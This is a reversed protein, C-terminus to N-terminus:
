KPELLLLSVRWNYDTIKLDVGDQDLLRVVVENFTLDYCPSFFMESPQVNLAYGFDETPTFEYIIGSSNAGNFSSNNALNSWVRVSITNDIQPVISGNVEYETTKAEPPYDGAVFGLKKNILNNASFTLVPVYATGTILSNPDSYDTPLVAPIPSCTLTTKNYYRNFYFSIYYVPASDADLLYYGNAYMHQQLIFNLDDISYYGTTYSVTESDAGFTYTLSYTGLTTNVNYWSNYLTLSQLGIKCGKKLQYGARLQNTIQNIPETDSEKKRLFIPYQNYGDM